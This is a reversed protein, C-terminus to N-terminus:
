HLEFSVSVNATVSIRGPQMSGEPATGGGSANQVVNQSMSGYRGGWYSGYSSWWGGSNESISYPQGVKQGLKEALAIAKERAAQIAAARAQDRYKRLESTEFSIGQVHNAGSSVAAGLLAEFKNIDLLTVVSSRRVEYGLIKRGTTNGDKDRQDRYDPEISVYDTQVDKSLVGQSVASNVVKKIRQDNEEKARPLDENWSEVGLTIVVRDPVVMIASEGNVSILRREPAEHASAVGTLVVSGAVFLALRNRKM